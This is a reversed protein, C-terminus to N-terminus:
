AAVRRLSKVVQVVDLMRGSAYLGKDLTFHGDAPNNYYVTIVDWSELSLVVCTGKRDRVLARWEKRENHVEVVRGCALAERADALTFVRESARDMFHFKAAHTQAAHARIFGHAFAMEDVNFQSIHKRMKTLCSQFEPNKMGEGFYELNEEM